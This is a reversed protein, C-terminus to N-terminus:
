AELSFACREIVAAIRTDARAADWKPDVQLFMLHVDRREYAQIIAEAAADVDGLGLHVLGVACQPVYRERSLAVLMDRVREADERDGYKSLYYGRLAVVKSNGFSNRGADALARVAIEPYGLEISAQALHFHGVWFEPDIALSQRAFQAALEFDRAAFAVQASLAHHVALLPDIERARRMMPLSDASRGVHSYLLGLMRYPFSYGPDLEIARRFAVEAARWDWTLWFDRFGVSAQVEALDPQARLAQQTARMAAPLVEGPSADGTIPRASLADAIGSWALAYDPDLETARAYHELARRTTAPTLQHWCHRGRLYADFADPNNSHRGRRATVWDTDLHLHVQQAIAGALKRQFEFMSTLENDFSASWLQLQDRARVLSATVRLQENEARLSGEVLYDVGLERAIRSLSETTRKYEMVSSRSMVGLQALDLQGLALITEETLGDALYEREPDTSLNDFPLVALKLLSCSDRPEPNVLRVEAVFRYGRGPVTQIYQNTGRRDALVRRLVMINQNLNNEEVDSDPWVARMLQDKGILEGPQRVLELLTAFVKPTLPAAEGRRLLVRRLTEIRFEGFAYAHPVAPDGLDM